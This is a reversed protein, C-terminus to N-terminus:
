AAWGTAAIARLKDPNRVAYIAHIRRGDTAFSYVGNVCGDLIGLLGPEGNVSVPQFRARDGYNRRHNRFIACYLRALREAGRLPHRTAIVKGGGDSIAVADPAFLAQLQTRDGTRATELFRELLQRHTQEDVRFRPQDLRVRQRARHV